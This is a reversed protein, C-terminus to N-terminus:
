DFDGYDPTEEMAKTGGKVSDVLQKYLAPDVTELSALMAKVEDVKGEHPAILEANASWHIKDPAFRRVEKDTALYGQELLGEKAKDVIVRWPNSCTSRIIMRIINRVRDRKPDGSLKEWVEAELGYLPEKPEGSRMLEVDREAFIGLRKKEFREMRLYGASALGAFAAVLLQNALDSLRVKVDTYLLKEAGVRAKGVFRDGFLYVIGSASPTGETEV